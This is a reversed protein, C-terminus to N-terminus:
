GPTVRGDDPPHLARQLAAVIAAPPADGVEAALIRQYDEFQRTADERRGLHGYYSILAIQFEEQLPDARVAIECCEVSRAIAGHRAFYHAAQKLLELYMRRLRETEPTAWDGYSEGAGLDGRYLRLAEELAAPNPPAMERLLAQARAEFDLADLRIRTPDLLYAAGHRELASGIGAEGLMQRLAHLLVRLRLASHDPPDDPWFAELLQDRRIGRGRALMLYALLEVARRRRPLSAPAGHVLLSSVGLIRLDLLPAPMTSEDQVHVLVLATGDTEGHSPPSGIVSGSIPLLRGDPTAWRSWGLTVPERRHMSQYVPCDESVCLREGGPHLAAIVDSCLRGVLDGEPEGTLAAAAANVAVIRQGDGIVFAADATLRVLEVFEM